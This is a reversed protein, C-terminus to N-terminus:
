ASVCRWGRSRHAGIQELRDVENELLDRRADLGVRDHQDVAALDRERRGSAHRIAPRPAPRHREDGLVAVPTGVAEVADRPHAVAHEADHGHREQEVVRRDPRQVDRRAEILVVRLFQVAEGACRMAITLSPSTAPSWAAGRARRPLELRRDGDRLRDVARDREVAFRIREPPEDRDAIRHEVREPRDVFRRLRRHAVRHAAEREDADEPDPQGADAAEPEGPQQALRDARQRIRERRHRRGM